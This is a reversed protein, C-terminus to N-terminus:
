ARYGRAVSHLFSELLRRAGEFDALSMLSNPSHIYRCPVSVTATVAGTAAQQIAGADNGGATGERYQYIIGKEDALQALHRVLGSHHISTRDMIGLAPGHGLRTVQGHPPTDPIDACTTGELAVAIDPRISYGLVRAGRLGVEEQVTFAGVLPVDHEALLLELLLACGARDDLAKGRVLGEGMESFSSAFVAYDGPSVHKRAQDGDRAGIDIFLDDAAPPRKREDPKQMHFPKVGITGPIAGKGVRVTTAPLIRDDMGGVKDFRLLGSNEIHTIIFGVEDMHAAMMVRPLGDRGPKEAILNGLADATVDLGHDALCRRLYARVAGEDGSVGPLNSLECLTKTM